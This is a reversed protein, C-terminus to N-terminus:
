WSSLDNKERQKEQRGRSRFLQIFLKNIKMLCDAIERQAERSSEWNQESEFVKGKTSDDEEEDIYHLLTHVIYSDM